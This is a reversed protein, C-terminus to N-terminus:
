KYFYTKRLWLLVTAGPVVVAQQHLLTKPSCMVYGRRLALVGQVGVKTFSGDARCFGKLASM